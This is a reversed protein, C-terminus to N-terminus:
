QKTTIKMGALGISLQTGSERGENKLIVITVGSENKKSM